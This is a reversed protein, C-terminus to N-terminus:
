NNVQIKPDIKFTGRRRTGNNFVKFTISYKQIEGSKGSQVRGMVIGPMQNSDRLTNQGLLNKGSEHIISTIRVEDTDPANISVADWIIFDGDSVQITFDANSIGEKQGFNCVSDESDVQITSTNVRLTVTHTSKQAQVNSATLVCLLVLALQYIPNM